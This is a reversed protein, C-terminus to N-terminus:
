ETPVALTVRQAERWRQYAAEPEPVGAAVLAALVRTPLTPCYGAEARGLETYAIGTARALQARSLGLTKRLGVVPNVVQDDM